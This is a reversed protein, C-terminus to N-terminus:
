KITKKITERVSHLEKREEPSWLAEQEPTINLIQQVIEPHCLLQDVVTPTTEPTSNRSVARSNLSSNVSCLPPIVTPQQIPSVQNYSSQSASHPSIQNSHSSESSWTRCNPPNPFTSQPYQQTTQLSSPHRKCENIYGDENDQSYQNLEKNLNSQIVHAHNTYFFYLEEAKRRDLDKAVQDMLKTSTIATFPEDIMGCVFQAHLVAYCLSPNDLLLTRADQPSDIVYRQLHGLLYLLEAASFSQVLNYIECRASQCDALTSTNTNPHYHQTENVRTVKASNPRDKTNNSSLSANLSLPAIIGTQKGEYRLTDNSSYDLRLTRGGFMSGNLNAIALACCESNEYECFAFGKSQGTQKDVSIRISAVPGM